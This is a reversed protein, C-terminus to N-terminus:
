CGWLTTILTTTKFVLITLSLFRTFKLPIHKSLQYMIVLYFRDFTNSKFSNFFKYKNKTTRM